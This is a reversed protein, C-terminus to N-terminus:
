PVLRSRHEVTVPAEDHLALRCLICITSSANDTATTMETDKELDNPL